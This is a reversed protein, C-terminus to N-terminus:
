RSWGGRSKWSRSCSDCFTPHLRRLSAPEHTANMLCGRNRCHVMGFTHALEHLVAGALRDTAEAPPLGRHFFPNTSFVAVRGNLEALGYVTPRKHDKLELATLGLVRPSPEQRLAALAFHADLREQGPRVLSAVQPGAASALSTDFGHAELRAALGEGAGAPLPGIPVICLPAAV